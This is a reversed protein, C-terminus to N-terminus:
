NFINHKTSRADQYSGGFYGVQSVIKWTHKNWNEVYKPADMHGDDPANNYWHSVQNIDSQTSSRRTHLNVQM